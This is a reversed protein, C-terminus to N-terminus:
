YLSSSIPRGHTSKSYARPRTSKLIRLISDVTTIWADCRNGTNCFAAAKVISDPAHWPTEIGLLNLSDIEAFTSTAM